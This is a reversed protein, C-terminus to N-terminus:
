HIDGRALRVAWRTLLYQAAILVPLLLVAGTLIAESTWDVGIMGGINGALSKDLSALLISGAGALGTVGAALLATSQAQRKAEEAGAKAYALRRGSYLGLAIGPLPVLVPVGMTLAFAVLTCCFYVALVVPKRVSYFNVLMTRGFILCALLGAALGGFAFLRIMGGPLPLLGYIHIAAATWWCVLGCLLPLLLWLAALILTREFRNSIAPVAM